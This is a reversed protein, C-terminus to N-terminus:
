SGTKRRLAPRSMCSFTLSDISLAEISIIRRAAASLTGAPAVPVLEGEGDMKCLQWGADSM